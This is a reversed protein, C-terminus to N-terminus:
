KYIDKIINIPIYENDITVLNNDYLGVIKKTLIQNDVVINVKTRYIFTNSNFIDSIKKRIDNTNYVIDTNNNDSYSTYVSKNNNCEKNVVGRYMKPKDSM